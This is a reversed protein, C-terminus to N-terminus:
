THDGFSNISLLFGLVSNRYRKHVLSLRPIGVLYGNTQAGRPVNKLSLGTRIPEVGPVDKKSPNLHYVKKEYSASNEPSTGAVGRGM